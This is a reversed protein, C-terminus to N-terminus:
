KCLEGVIKRLQQMPMSLSGGPDNKRWKKIGLLGAVEHHGLIFNVDFVGKDDNNKLWVLTNILVTEQAKSYKHYFGTPCGYEAETVYRVDSAPIEEDLDFLRGKKDFAWYPYFKEGVKTLKGACNMEIGVLDDSVTGLLGKWASEGAHYGWQDLPLGQFLTADEGHSICMFAFGNGRGNKMTDRAKDKGGKYRGATFHVVVGRPYKKAYTGRSKMYPSVPTAFPVWLKHVFYEPKPAPANVVVPPNKAVIKEAKSPGYIIKFSM